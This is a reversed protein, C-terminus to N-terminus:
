KRPRAPAKRRGRAENEQQDPVKVCTHREGSRIMKKCLPCQLELGVLLMQCLEFRKPQKPM